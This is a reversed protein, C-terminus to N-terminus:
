GVQNLDSFIFTKDAKFGCAIIDRINDQGMRKYHRLLQIPKKGKVKKLMEAQKKADRELLFKEDDVLDAIHHWFEVLM